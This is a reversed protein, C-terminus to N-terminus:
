NEPDAPRKRYRVYATTVSVWTIIENLVGGWSGILFNFILFLPCILIMNAFRLKQPDRSWFSILAISFGMVPLVDYWRTLTLACLVVQVGILIYVWGKWALKPWRDRLLLMVNMVVSVCLVALGTVSGLLLYQVGFFADSILQFVLVGKASKFQFSTVMAALGLFGLAQIFFVSGTM